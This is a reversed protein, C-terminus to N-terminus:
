SPQCSLRRHTIPPSPAISSMPKELRPRLNDRTAEFCWPEPEQAILVNIRRKLDDLGQETIRPFEESAQKGSM